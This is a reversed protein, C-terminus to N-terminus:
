FLLSVLFIAEVVVLGPCSEGDRIRRRLADVGRRVAKVVPRDREKDTMRTGRRKSDGM